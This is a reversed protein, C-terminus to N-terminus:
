SWFLNFVQQERDTAMHPWKGWDGGVRRCPRHGKGGRRVEYFENNAGLGKRKPQIKKPKAAWM